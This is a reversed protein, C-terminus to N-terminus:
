NAEIRIDSIVLRDGAKSSVGKRQLLEEYDLGDPKLDGNAHLMLGRSDLPLPRRAFGQEAAFATILERHGRPTLKRQDLTVHTPQFPPINKQHESEVIFVQNQALAASGAHLIGLGSALLAVPQIARRLRFGTRM